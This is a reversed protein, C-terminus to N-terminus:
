GGVVVIDKVMKSIHMCLVGDKINELGQEYMFLDKFLGEQFRTDRVFDVYRLKLVQYPFRTVCHWRMKMEM